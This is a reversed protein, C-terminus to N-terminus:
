WKKKKKKKIAYPEINTYCALLKKVTSIHGGKAAVHLASDNNKNFKFLLKPARQIVLNVIDNNGNWAAVHLVTNKM